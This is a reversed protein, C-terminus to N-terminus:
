NLGTQGRKPYLGMLSPKCPEHLNFVSRTLRQQQFSSLTLKVETSRLGFFMCFM